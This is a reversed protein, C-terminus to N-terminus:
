AHRLGLVFMGDTGADQPLVLGGPGHRRWREPPPLVGFEPRAELFRAAVAITEANTMTCVSYVVMGGPRVVRAAELLLEVQLDALADIAEPVVRWRLDPRRRLAGLGTCPADVLVVDVVHAAIPIRRSDAQATVLNSTGLRSAAERVLRLRGADVDLAVVRGADVQEAAATAKGGPAAAVDVVLADPAPDAYQIVAQSAQDQPTARGERIAPLVSPDGIGRVVLSDHVLRGREVHAGAAV